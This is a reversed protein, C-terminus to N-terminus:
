GQHAAHGVEDKRLRKVPSMRLGRGSLELEEKAEEKDDEGPKVFVWSPTEIREKDEVSALVARPATSPVLHHRSRTPSVTVSSPAPRASEMQFTPPHVLSLPLTTIHM